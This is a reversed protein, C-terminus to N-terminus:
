QEREEGSKGRTALHGEVEVHARHTPLEVAVRHLPVADHVLGEFGKVVADGGDHLSSAPLLVWPAVAPSLASTSSM